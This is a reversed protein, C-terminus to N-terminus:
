TVGSFTLHSGVFSEVQFWRPLLNDSEVEIVQVNRKRSATCSATWSTVFRSRLNIWDLTEELAFMPPLHFRTGHDIHVLGSTIFKRNNKSQYLKLVKLSQKFNRQFPDKQLQKQMPRWKPKSISILILVLSSTPQIYHVPLIRAAQNSVHRTGTWSPRSFECIVNETLHDSSARHSNIPIPRFSENKKVM